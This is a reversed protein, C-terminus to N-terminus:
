AILEKEEKPKPANVKTTNYRMERKKIIDRRQVIKIHSDKHPTLKESQEAATGLLSM